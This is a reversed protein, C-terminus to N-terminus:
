PRNTKSVRISRETVVVFAGPLAEAHHELLREVVRIKSASTEDELRLLVIGAHARHDRFALEGFDKDNTIIIRADSAARGLIVDDSAGRDQEYVSFVDHGEERLRRAVAPGTCEDVLLRM